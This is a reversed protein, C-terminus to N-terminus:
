TCGRWNLSTLRTGPSRSLYVYHGYVACPARM